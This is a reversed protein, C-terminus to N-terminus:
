QSPSSRRSQRRTSTLATRPTAVSPPASPFSAGRAGEGSASETGAVDMSSLPFASVKRPSANLPLAPPIASTAPTGSVTTGPPSARAHRQGRGALPRPEHRLPAGDACQQQPPGSLARAGGAGRAAAAAAATQMTPSAMSALSRDGPKRVRDRLRAAAGDSTKATLIVVELSTRKLALALELCCAQLIEADDEDFPVSACPAPRAPGAGPARGRCGRERGSPAFAETSVTPAGARAAAGTPSPVEPLQPMVDVPRQRGQRSAAVARRRGEVRAGGRRGAPARPAASLSADEAPFPFRLKNLAQMVALVRRAPDLVAPVARQRTNYSLVSDLRSDFCDLLRADARRQRGPRHARRAGRHGHRPRLRWGRSTTAASAAGSSAASPSSSSSPCATRTSRTAEAAAVLRGPM